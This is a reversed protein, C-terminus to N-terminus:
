DARKSLDDFARMLQADGSSNLQDATIDGQDSPHLPTVDSPLDVEVTPAVGIHWLQEGKPTLWLATGLVLMSGDKLELPSLVTGTGFTTEGILPARDNDRLASAVIEAASASGHNILVAMPLDTGLGIGTTNIPLAEGGRDEFQYIPKGEPLFQSAVGIAEFVLGGPNDRLDLVVASAGRQKVDTLAQKVGDTAGVSFQSIRIMAVGGPLMGWTVPAIEIKRRELTVTYSRNESPREFTVQVSTGEDGRLLKFLDVQSMSETSKGDVATVVDDSQVGAEKAPSGDIPSVVVPRGTTYDVQIGIGILEGRSSEQFAQAEDPTLFTSHGTDGLADVMGAAAGYILATDDISSEDIYDSHILDWTQQLTQFEPLDTLSSSAGANHGDILGSREVGVGAGFTVFLVGAM